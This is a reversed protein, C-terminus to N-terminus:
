AQHVEAPKMVTKGELTSCWFEEIQRVFNKFNHTENMSRISAKGMTESLAVDSMLESLASALGSSLDPEILLGNVKNTVFLNTQGVNRAIIANGSAMAEAMTLSPFNDYDQCSVYIRSYNLIKYLEGEILFDVHGSIENRQAYNILEERLPGDGCIKFKWSKLIAPSNRSLQLIAELMWKPHKQEDLRSAFVVWNQKEKAPFYNVVDSFRSTISRITNPSYTLKADKRLYAPFNENWCFYGDVNVESFLPLYNAKMSKHNPDSANSLAPAAFCNVINIALKPRIFGPISNIAKLLPLYKVNYLPVHVIRIRHLLVYFSIQASELFSKFRNSYIRLYLLGKEYKLKGVERLHGATERDIIFYPEFKRESDEKYQVFFDSFFREAGGGGKLNAVGFMLFAVGPRM